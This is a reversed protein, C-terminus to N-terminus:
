FRLTILQRCWLMRRRGEAIYAHKRTSGSGAARETPPDVLVNMDTRIRLFCKSVIQSKQSKQLPTKVSMVHRRTVIYARNITLSDVVHANMSVSHLMPLSRTDVPQWINTMIM